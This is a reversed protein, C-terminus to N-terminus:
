VVEHQEQKKQPDIGRALLALKEDRMQRAEALSFAPYSGLAIMTRKDIGPQKYRFRWLKKGSPKVLLFLGDGDYLSQDKDAPKAKHVETHTLPRTIRAICLSGEM